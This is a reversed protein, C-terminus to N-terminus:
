NPRANAVRLFGVEDAELALKQALMSDAIPVGGPQACYGALIRGAEDLRKVNGHSGRDIRYRKGGPTVVYFCAKTELDEQQEPSLCGRLLAEARRDAEMRDHLRARAASERRQQELLEAQVEADTKKRPLRSSAMRAIERDLAANDNVWGGWTTTLSTNTYVSNAGTTLNQSALWYPWPGTSTATSTTVNGNWIIWADNAGTM